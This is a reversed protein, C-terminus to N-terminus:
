QKWLLVASQEDCKKLVVCWNGQDYYSQEVTVGDVGGVLRELEAEEFVHYFRHFTKEDAGKKKWPVMVDSHQFNTRNTHVPFMTPFGHQTGDNEHGSVHGGNNNNKKKLYSSPQENRHQEKAWAYILCRGGPRLVRCIERVAQLRRM